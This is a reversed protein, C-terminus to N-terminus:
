DTLESPLIDIHARGNTVTGARLAHSIYERAGGGITMPWFAMVQQVTVSGGVTGDLAFGPYLHHQPGAEGWYYRGTADVVGDGAKAHIATFNIARDASVISGVVHVDSLSVPSAFTGPVDLNLAPLAINFSAPENPAARLIRSFDRVRVEGRM